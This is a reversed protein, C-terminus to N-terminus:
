AYLVHMALGCELTGARTVSGQCLTMNLVYHSALHGTGWKFGSLRKMGLYKRDVAFGRQEFFIALNDHAKHEQYALEPHEWLSRNLAHLDATHEDVISSVLKKTEDLTVATCPLARLQSNISGLRRTAQSFKAASASLECCACTGARSEQFGGLAAIFATQEPTM